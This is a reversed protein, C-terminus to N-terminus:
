KAEASEKVLWVERTRVGPRIEGSAVVHGDLWKVLPTAVPVFASTGTRAWRDTNVEYAYVNNPFGPHKEPPRFGLHTSDDGGFVIVYGEPALAPTPAAVIGVPADAM